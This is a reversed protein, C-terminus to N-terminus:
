VSKVTASVTEVTTQVSHPSVGRYANRLVLVGGKLQALEKILATFRSKKEEDTLYPTFHHICDRTTANPSNRLWEIVMKDDLEGAAVGTPGKRKKAKPPGNVNPSTVTSQDESAKRKNGNVKVLTGPSTPSGARSVTAPPSTARTNTQATPVGAQAM